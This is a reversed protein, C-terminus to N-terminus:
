ACTPHQRGTQMRCTGSRASLCFVLQKFTQLLFFCGPVLHTLKLVQYKVSAVFNLYSYATSEITLNGNYQTLSKSSTNGVRLDVMFRQSTGDIFKYNVTMKTAWSAQGKSIYGVVKFTLRKTRFHLDVEYLTIDKKETVKVTGSLQVVRESNVALYLRPYYIFGNKIVGSRLGVQAVMHKQGNIDLSLELYKEM